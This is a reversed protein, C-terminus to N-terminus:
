FHFALGAYYQWGEIDVRGATDELSLTTETIRAGANLGFYDTFLIDIGARAYLGAGIGSDSETEDSFPDPTPAEPEIERRGYILLPGAGIHLRLWRVPELAVYGGFFFDVLLSRIDISVSASGGGTGSSASFRRLDSDLSFLAGTEIGYKFIGRGLPKQVDVGFINIDYDGGDVQPDDNETTMRGYFVHGVMPEKTEQSLAEGVSFLGIAAGIVLITWVEVSGTFKM